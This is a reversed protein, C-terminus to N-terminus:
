RKKRIIVAAPLLALLAFIGAGANCGSSGGSGGGPNVDSEAVKLTFKHSDEGKVNTATVTFSYEGATTPTGSIVGNEANLALGDPLVSGDTLSWTIPGTGTATIQISYETGAKGDSLTEMAITPAIRTDTVALSLEKSASDVINGVCVTSKYEGAAVPTGSIVGTKPDLKLGAPLEGGIISWTFPGTGSATLTYSYEEAVLAGALQTITVSPAQASLTMFISSVEGMQNQGILEPQSKGNGAYRYLGGTGPNWWVYDSQKDYNIEPNCSFTGSWTNEWIKTVLGKAELEDIGAPKTETLKEIEKMKDLTTKYVFQADTGSYMPNDCAFFYIDGNAAAVVSKFPTAWSDDLNKGSLVAELTMTDLNIASIASDKINSEAMKQDYMALSEPVGAAALYLMNGNRTHCSAGAVMGLYLARSPVILERGTPTLNEDLEVVYSDYPGYVGYWNSQAPNKKSYGTYIGYIKGNYAFVDMANAGADPDKEEPKFIFQNKKKFGNAMDYQVIRTSGDVSGNFGIDNAFYAVYLSDGLIEMGRPNFERNDDWGETVGAGTLNAEREPQQEWGAKGYPTYIKLGANDGTSSNGMVLLRAWGDAGIAADARGVNEIIFSGTSSNGKICGLGGPQGYGGSSTYFVDASAVGTALLIMVAVLSAMLRMIKRM